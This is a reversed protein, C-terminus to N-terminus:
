LGYMKLSILVNARIKRLFPRRAKVYRQWGAQADKEDREEVVDVREAKRRFLM